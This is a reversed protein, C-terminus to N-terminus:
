RASRFTGTQPDYDYDAGGAGSAAAPASGRVRAMMADRADMLDAYQRRLRVREAESLEGSKVQSAIKRMEADIDSMSKAANTIEGLNPAPPGGGGDEQVQLVQSGTDYFAKGTVPDRFVQFPKEPKPLYGAIQEPSFAGVAVGERLFDEHTPTVGNGIMTSMRRNLEAQSAQQKAMQQMKAVQSRLALGGAIEQMQELGMSELDERSFMAEGDEGPLNGLVQRLGKAQGARRKSEIQAKQAAAQAQDASAKAQAKRERRMALGANIGGVLAEGGQSLYIDGRYETGPAYPM